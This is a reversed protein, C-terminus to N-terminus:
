RLKYKVVKPYDEESFVVIYFNNDDDIIAQIVYEKKRIDAIRDSIKFRSILNLDLDYNDIYFVNSEPNLFPVALQDGNKIISMGLIVRSAGPPTTIISTGFGDVKFKVQLYTNFDVDGMIDRLIKGETDYKILRYPFGQSFILEGKKTGILQTFNSNHYYYRWPEPIPLQSIQKLIGVAPEIFIGFEADVKGLSRSVHIPKHDEKLIISSLYYTKNLLEIDNYWASTRASYLFNGEQDYVNIRRQANDIVYINGDSLINIIRANKSLEGPGQGRKGFSFLFNGERSFCQIRGNGSDLLYIRGNKGIALSPPGYFDENPKDSGIKLVFEARIPYEKPKSDDPTLIIPTNTLAWDNLQEGLFIFFSLCVYILRKKWM